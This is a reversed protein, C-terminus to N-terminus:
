IVFILIKKMEVQDKEYLKIYDNGYKTIVYDIM